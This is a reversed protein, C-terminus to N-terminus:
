YGVMRKREYGVIGAKGVTIAACVEIYINGRTKLKGRWFVILLM